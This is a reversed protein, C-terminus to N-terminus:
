STTESDLAALSTTSKAIGAKGFVRKAYDAKGFREKGRRVRKRFFARKRRRSM